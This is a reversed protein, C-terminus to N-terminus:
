NFTLKQFCVQAIDKQNSENFTKHLYNNDYWQNATVPKMTPSSTYKSGITKVPQVLEAYRVIEQPDRIYWSAQPLTVDHQVDPDLDYGQSQAKALMLNAIVQLQAPEIRSANTFRFVYSM